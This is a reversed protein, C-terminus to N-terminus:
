KGARLKDFLMFMRQGQERTFSDLCEDYSCDMYNHISDQGLQDPCTDSSASCGEPPDATGCRTLEQAAAYTALTLSAIISLFKM